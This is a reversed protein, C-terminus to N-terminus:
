GKFDWSTAELLSPTEDDWERYPLLQRELANGKYCAQGYNKSARHGEGDDYSIDGPQPISPLAPRRDNLSALKEESIPQFYQPFHEADDLSIQFVHIGYEKLSAADLYPNHLTDIEIAKQALRLQSAKHRSRDKPLEM